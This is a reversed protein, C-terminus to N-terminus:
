GEARTAVRTPYGIVYALVIAEASGRLRVQTRGIGDLKQVCTRVIEENSEHRVRGSVDLLRDGWLVVVRYM